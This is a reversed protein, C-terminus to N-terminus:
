HRGSHAASAGRRGRAARLDQLAAPVLSWPEVCYRVFLRRPDRMLRYAWELGVRGTWRPAAAQVGAEYDFAAGVSLIACDPLRELNHVIWAEQRPMGMGVFLVHPRFAAVEALVATTEASGPTADFYGHHTRINAQPHRAGLRRAATEGVGPAGGVAMVRWGERDALSWFRDRWDLYTCRHFPRASLGLIRAFWLLPRSDVQVLDTAAYFARMEATKRVLHLSHLNHNAIVTRRGERVHRALHLLVEEPRVLDVSQGLLRVREDDRRAQRFAPRAHARRDDAPTQILSDAM